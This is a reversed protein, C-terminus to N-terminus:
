NVMYTFAVVSLGLAMYWFAMYATWMSALIPANKRTMAPHEVQEQKIRDDSRKEPGWVVRIFFWKFSLRVDRLKSNDSSQNLVRDIESRQGDSLTGAVDPSFDNWFRKSAVCVESM